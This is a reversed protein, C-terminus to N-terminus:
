GEKIEDETRASVVKFKPHKLFFAFLDQNPHEETSTFFPIEKLILQVEYYHEAHVVAVRRNTGYIEEYFLLGERNDFDGFLIHDEWECVYIMIVSTTNFLADRM